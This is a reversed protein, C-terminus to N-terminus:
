LTSAEPVGSGKRWTWRPSAEVDTTLRRERETRCRRRATNTDSQGTALSMKKKEKFM